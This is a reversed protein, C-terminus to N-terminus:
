LTATCNIFFLAKSAWARSSNPILSIVRGFGRCAAIAEAAENIEPPINGKRTDTRAGIFPITKKWYPNAIRNRPTDPATAAFIPPEFIYLDMQLIHRQPVTAINIDAKTPYINPTRVEHTPM